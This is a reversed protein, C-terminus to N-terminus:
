ASFSLEGLTLQGDFSYFRVRRINAANLRLALNPPLGAESGALNAGRSETQAIPQDNGDFAAMVARHSSTVRGTVSRVPKAFHAEICGPKPAAMLVMEGQHPPFAPNSPVLAIANKFTVGVQQFQSEVIEFPRLHELALRVTAPEPPAIAVAEPASEQVEFDIAMLPHAYDPLSDGWCGQAEKM